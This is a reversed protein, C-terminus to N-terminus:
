RNKFIENVSASPGKVPPLCDQHGTAAMTWTTYFATPLEVVSAVTLVVFDECGTQTMSDKHHSTCCRFVLYTNRRVNKKFM